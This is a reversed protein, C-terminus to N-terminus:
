NLSKKQQQEKQEANCDHTMEDAPKIPQSPLLSLWKAQHRKLMASYNIETRLVIITPLSYKTGKKEENKAHLQFPPQM